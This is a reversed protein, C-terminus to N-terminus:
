PLGLADLWIGLSFLLGFAVLLASTGSLSANLARGEDRSVRRLRSWAWPLTALPLVVLLGNLGLGWLLLPTAYAFLLLAAYEATAASRGWRVALTRKGARVDTERDRINNVVLIGAALAGPPVSAWLALPPITGSGVYVTGMVAVFGFYLIVFLEGLGHYGLPYPGGTYALASLIASAGILLIWPGSNATLYLGVLSALVILIATGTAVARPSLLGAQVVRTPGLRAATDAGKRHDFLDNSLNAVMQLLLAGALAALIPLIRTPATAYAVAAGVAVPVVGAPLTAPRVALLWAGVSGPAPLGRVTAVPRKSATSTLSM